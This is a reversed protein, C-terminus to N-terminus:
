VRLTHHPTVEAPRNRRMHAASSLPPRQRLAHGHTSQKRDNIHTHTHTHICQYNTHITTMPLSPPCGNHGARQTRHPKFSSSKRQGDPTRSQLPPQPAVCHPSKAMHHTNYQCSHLTPCSKVEWGGVGGNSALLAAGGDSVAASSAQCHLQSVRVEAATLSAVVHSRAQAACMHTFVAHSVESPAEQAALQYHLRNNSATPLLNTTYSIYQTIQHHNSSSKPCTAPM